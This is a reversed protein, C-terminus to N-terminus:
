MILAIVTDDNNRQHIHVQHQQYSYPNNQYGQNVRLNNNYDINNPRTQNYQNNQYQNNYDDSNQYSISDSKDEITMKEFSIYKYFKKVLQTM